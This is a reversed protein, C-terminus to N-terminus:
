GLLESSASVASTPVQHGLGHEFYDVHYGDDELAPVIRRSTSTIPLISDRRGHSVFLTPRGDRHVHPIYGPSYAIVRTFLDGNALGLGLAYSAGDSFGALAIRDPDVQFHDFVTSMAHQISSADKSFNSHAIADWTVGESHPALLLAGHEYATERLLALMDGPVGAAGHLAVLLPPPRFTSLAPVYLLAPRTATEVWHLGAGLPPRVPSTPKATLAGHALDRGTTTPM